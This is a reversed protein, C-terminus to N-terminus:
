PLRHDADFSGQRVLEVIRGQQQFYADEARKLEDYIGREEASSILKEYAEQSRAITSRLEEILRLNAQVQASDRNLMSRLTIARLRLINKSVDGIALVSPLWNDNIEDSRERMEGMQMLSFIGLLVVLMAVLGFGLAARPAIALNRLSM